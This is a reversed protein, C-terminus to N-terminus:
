NSNEDPSKKSALFWIILVPVLSIGTGVALLQINFLFCYIAVGLPILGLLLLSNKM